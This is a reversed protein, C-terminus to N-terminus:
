PLGWMGHGIVGHFLTHSAYDADLHAPNTDGSVIAFAEIDSQGLTRHLIATQGIYLDDFVVNAVMEDALDTDQIIM